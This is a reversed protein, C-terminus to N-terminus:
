TTSHGITFYYCVRYESVEKPKRYLLTEQGVYYVAIQELRIYTKHTTMCLVHSVTSTINTFWKFYSEHVSFRSLLM